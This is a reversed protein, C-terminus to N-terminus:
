FGKYVLGTMLSQESLLAFLSLAALSLLVVAARVLMEPAPRM